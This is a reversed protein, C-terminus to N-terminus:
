SVGTPNDNIPAADGLKGTEASVAGVLLATAIISKYQM